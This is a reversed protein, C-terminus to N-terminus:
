AGEEDYGQNLGADRDHHPVNAKDAAGKEGAHENAHAMTEDHGMVPHKPVEKHKDHGEPKPSKM